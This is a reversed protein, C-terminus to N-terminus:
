IKQVLMRESEKKGFVKKWKWFRRSMLKKLVEEDEDKETKRVKKEKVKQKRRGCIPPCHTMKVEGKEWDIEPNHAALWPIGLILETKGLNCVDMRAREMHGKFFM